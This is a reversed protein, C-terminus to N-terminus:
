RMSCRMLLRGLFHRLQSEGESTKEEQTASAQSEARDAFSVSPNNYSINWIKLQMESINLTENVVGGDFILSKQWRGKCLPPKPQNKSM